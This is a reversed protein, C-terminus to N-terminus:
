KGAVPTGGTGSHRSMMKVVFDDIEDNPIELAFLFDRVRGLDSDVYISLLDDVSMERVALRFLASGMLPGSVKKMARIFALAMVLETRAVPDPFSRWMAM